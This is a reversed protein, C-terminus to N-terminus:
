IGGLDIIVFAYHHLGDAVYHRSYKFTNIKSLEKLLPDDVNKSILTCDYKINQKYVKDSANKNLIDNISYVVCPYKITLNPPPNFYVNEGVIETLLTYINNM